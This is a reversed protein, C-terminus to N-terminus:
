NGKQKLLGRAVLTKLFTEEDDTESPKHSVQRWVTEAPEELDQKLELDPTSAAQKQVLGFTLTEEEDPEKVGPSKSGEALESLTNKQLSEAHDSGVAASPLATSEKRDSALETEAAVEVVTKEMAEAKRIGEEQKVLRRLGEAILLRTDQTVTEELSDHEEDGITYDAGQWTMLHYLAEEARLGPAKVDVIRGNQFYIRGTQDGQNLTITCSRKNMALVQLIDTLNMDRLVGSQSQSPSMAERRLMARRLNAEVKSLLEHFTYPKQLHDTPPGPEAHLNVPLNKESTLFIIPVESLAPISGLIKKFEMGNLDPMQLKAVVVHPKVIIATVVADKVREATFVQYGIQSFRLELLKLVKTNDDVVLIKQSSTENMILVGQNLELRDVNNSIKVIGQASGKTL